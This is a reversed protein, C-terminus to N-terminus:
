TEVCIYKYHLFCFNNKGSLDRKKSNIIANERIKQKTEETHNKGYFSNKEKIRSDGITKRKKEFWKDFGGKLFRVQIDAITGYWTDTRFADM